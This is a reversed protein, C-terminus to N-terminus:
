KQSLAKAIEIAILSCSGIDGSQDGSQWKLVLSREKGYLFPLQGGIVSMKLASTLKAVFEQAKERSSLNDFSWAKAGLETEVFIPSLNQLKEYSFPWAINNPALMIFCELAVKLRLVAYIEGSIEYIAIPIDGYKGTFCDKYERMNKAKLGADEAENMAIELAYKAITGSFNDTAQVGDDAKGLKLLVSIAVFIGACLALFPLYGLFEQLFRPLRVAIPALVALLIFSLLVLLAALSIGGSFGGIRVRARALADKIKQTTEFAIPQRM